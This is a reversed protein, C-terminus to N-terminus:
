AVQDLAARDARDRARRDVLRLLARRAIDIQARAILQRNPQIAPHDDPGLHNRLIALSRDQRSQRRGKGTPFPRAPSSNPLAPPRLGSQLEPVTALCPWILTWPQPPGCDIELRFADGRGPLAHKAAAYAHRGVNEPLSKPRRSGAYGRQPAGDRGHRAAENVADADVATDERAANSILGIVEERGPQERGFPARQGCFSEPGHRPCSAKENYKRNRVRTM